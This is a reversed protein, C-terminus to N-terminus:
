KGKNPKKNKLPQEFVLKARDVNAFEIRWTHNDKLVELVNEEQNFGILEGVLTKANMSKMEGTKTEFELTVPAETKIQVKKGVAKEFHWPVRLRRELGPSSVELEYGGGPILDNADLLLSFGRSFDACDEISVGQDGDLYIRLTRNGGSGVFEIDYISLASRQAVEGALDMLKEFTEPLLKM